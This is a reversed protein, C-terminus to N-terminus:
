SKRRERQLRQKRPLVPIGKRACGLAEAQPLLRWRHGAYERIGSPMEEALKWVTNPYAGDKAMERLIPWRRSTAMAQEAELEAARDGGRRAEGWQRFWLCSVTATVAAGVQYRSTTLGENPILSATFTSPLPIGKLMERVVTDHDAAKVVNAPMADLWTHSDVGKLWSLRERFAALDPVAARMELVYGDETWVAVMQRDGPKGPEFVHKGAADTFVTRGAHTDVVATTDLVPLRIPHRIPPLPRLGALGWSLEVKRQRVRAPLMGYVRYASNEDVVAHTVEDPIPEGTVFRMSGEGRSGEPLYPGYGAEYVDEVRWGPGQLLLLPTSEAFRVLNAGYARSPPGSADGGFIGFGIAAATAAIGAVFALRRTPRSLLGGGRRSDSVGRERAVRDGFPIPQTPREGAAIARLVERDLDADGISEQLEEPIAPNARRLYALVDVNRRRIM